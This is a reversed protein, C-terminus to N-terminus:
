IREKELALENSTTVMKLGIVGIILMIIFFIKLLTIEQNFLIVDALITGVTGIGTFVTYTTGIPLKKNAFTLLVFTLLICIITGIWEIINTSYKLGIVWIVEFITAIFVAM